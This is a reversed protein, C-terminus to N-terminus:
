FWYNIRLKGVYKQATEEKRLSLVRQSMTVLVLKGRWACYHIVHNKIYSKAVHKPM